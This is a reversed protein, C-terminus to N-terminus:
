PSAIPFTDPLNLAAIDLHLRTLRKMLNNRASADLAAEKKIFAALHRIVDAPAAYATRSATQTENQPLFQAELSALAKLYENRLHTPTVLTYRLAMSIRRHGLLKMISVIGVGGSLLSTAYTHRLRHFTVRKNQDHLDATFRNFRRQLRSYINPVRGRIGILRRPDRPTVGLGRSAQLSRIIRLAEDCLPVLRENNMKGLPVSLFHENGVTTVICDSSLNILESIRLGTLRLLRFAQAFPDDATRLRSTLLRDTENSLPRPLYDPVRPMRSRDFGDLAAPDITRHDVEWALYKKVALLKNVRSYPALRQRHLDALYLDLMDRDISAVHKATIVDARCSRQLFAHFNRLACRYTGVTSPKCPIGQEALYRRMRRPLKQKRKNM